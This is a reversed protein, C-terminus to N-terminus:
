VGFDSVIDQLNRVVLTVSTKDVASNAGTAYLVIQDGAQLQYTVSAAMMSFSLAGSTGFATISLNGGIQIGTYGGAFRYLWLSHVPSGSLGWASCAAAVLQGQASITALPFTVGTGVVPNMIGASIASATGVVNAVYLERQQSPDLDRNVIAM